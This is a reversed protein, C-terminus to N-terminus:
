SIKGFVSDQVRADLIFKPSFGKGTADPWYKHFYKEKKYQFSIMKTTEM